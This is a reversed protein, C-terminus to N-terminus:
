STPQLGSRGPSALPAGVTSSTEDFLRTAPGFDGLEIALLARMFASLEISGRRVQFGRYVNGVSFRARHKCGARLCRGEAALALQKFAAEKPESTQADCGLHDLTIQHHATTTAITLRGGGPTIYRGPSIPAYPHLHPLATERVHLPPLGDYPIYSGATSRHDAM